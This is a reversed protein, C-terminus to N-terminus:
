GVIYVPRKYVVTEAANLYVMLYMDALCLDVINYASYLSRFGVVADNDRGM